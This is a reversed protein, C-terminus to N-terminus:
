IIQNIHVQIAKCVGTLVHHTVDRLSSEKTWNNLMPCGTVNKYTDLWMHNLPGIVQM